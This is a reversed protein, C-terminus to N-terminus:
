RDDAGDLQELVESVNDVDVLLGLDSPELVYPTGRVAETILGRRALSNVAASVGLGHDRRLRDVAAAVDPELSITTRM